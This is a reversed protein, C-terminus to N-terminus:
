VAIWIWKIVTILGILALSLVFFAVFMDTKQQMINNKIFQIVFYKTAAM